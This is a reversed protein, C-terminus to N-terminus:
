FLLIDTSHSDVTFIPECETLLINLIEPHIDDSKELADLIKDFVHAPINENEQWLYKFIEQDFCLTSKHLAVILNKIPM